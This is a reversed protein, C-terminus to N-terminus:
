DEYLSRHVRYKVALIEDRTADNTARLHRILGQYIRFIKEPEDREMDHLTAESFSTLMVPSLAEVRASRHGQDLYAMEGIVSGQELFALVMESGGPLQKKVVARGQLLVYLERQVGGEPVILEGKNLSLQDGWTRFMMFSEGDLTRAVVADPHEKDVGAEEPDDFCLATGRTYLLQENLARVRQSLRRGIVKLLCLASSPFRNKLIDYKNRTLVVVDLNKRVVAAVPRTFGDLVMTEGFCDGPEVQSFSYEWGSPGLGIVDVLGDLAFFVADEPDGAAFVWDGQSFSGTSCAHAIHKLDERACDELCPFDLLTDLEVM